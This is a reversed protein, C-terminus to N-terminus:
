ATPRNAQNLSDLTRALLNARNHTCVVVTLKM